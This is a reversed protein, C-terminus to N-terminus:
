RLLKDLLSAKTELRVAANPEANAAAVEIKLTAVEAANTPRLETLIVREESTSPRSENAGTASWGALGGTVAAALVALWPAHTALASLSAAMAGLIAAVWPRRRPGDLKCLALLKQGVSSKSLQVLLGVIVALSAIAGAVKWQSIAKVAESLIPLM